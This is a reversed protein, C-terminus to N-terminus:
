DLDSGAAEVTRRQRKIGEVALRTLEADIEIVAVRHREADIADATEEIWDTFAVAEETKRKVFARHVRNLESLVTPPPDAFHSILAFLATKAIM